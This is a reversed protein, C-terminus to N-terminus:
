RCYGVRCLKAALRDIEAELVVIKRSSEAALGEYYALKAPGNAKDAWEDTSDMLGGM